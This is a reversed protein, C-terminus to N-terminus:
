PPPICVSHTHSVWTFEVTWLNQNQLLIFFDSPSNSIVYMYLTGWFQVYYLCRCICQWLWHYGFIKGLICYVDSLLSGNTGEWSTSPRTFCHKASFTGWTSFFAIELLDVANIAMNSSTYFLLAKIWIWFHCWWSRAACHIKSYLLAIKPEFLYIYICIKSWFYLLNYFIISRM